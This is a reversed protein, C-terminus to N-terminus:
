QAPAWKLLDPLRYRPDYNCVWVERRRDTAGTRLEAPEVRQHCDSPQDLRAGSPRTSQGFWRRDM